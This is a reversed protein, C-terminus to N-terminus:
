LLNLSAGLMSRVLTRCTGAPSVPHNPVSESSCDELSLGVVHLTKVKEQQRDGLSAFQRRLFPTSKSLVRLTLELLLISIVGQPCVQNNSSAQGSRTVSPPNVSVIHWAKLLSDETDSAAINLVAHEASLLTRDFSQFKVSRTTFLLVIL